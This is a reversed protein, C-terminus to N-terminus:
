PWFGGFDRRIKEFKSKFKKRAISLRAAVFLQLFAM